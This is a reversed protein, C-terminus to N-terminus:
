QTADQTCSSTPEMATPGCGASSASPKKKENLDGQFVVNRSLLGVEARYEVDQPDVRPLVAALASSTRSGAYEGGTSAERIDGVRQTVGLHLYELPQNLVLVSGVRSGPAGLLGSSAAREIEASTPARVDIIRRQEDEHPKRGTPAIVIVDGISWGATRKDRSDEDTPEMVDDQLLLVKDGPVATCALRTFSHRVPRGHLDLTGRRVALVKNGYLPIQPSRSTGHMTIVARGMYPEDETGAEVRGNKDVFIYEADLRIPSTADPDFVLSGGEVLVLKLQPPSVDLLLTQGERVVISQGEAPPSEGGWTYRSSFRDVYRFRSRFQVARGSPQSTVANGAQSPALVVSLTSEPTYTHRGTRCVFSQQSASGSSSERASGPQIVCPVGDISALIGSTDKNAPFLRSGRVTVMTGGATGGLSPSIGRVVPTLEAAFTITNSATTTTRVLLPSVHRTGAQASAAEAQERASIAAAAVVYAEHHDQEPPRDGIALARSTGLVSELTAYPSSSGSLSPGATAISVEVSCQVQLSGLADRTFEIAGDQTDYWRAGPDGQLVLAGNM